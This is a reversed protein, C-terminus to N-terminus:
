KGKQSALGIWIFIATQILFNLAYNVWPRNFLVPILGLLYQNLWVIGAVLGTAFLLGLFNAWRFPKDSLGSIPLAIMLIILLYSSTITHWLRSRYKREGDAVLFEKVNGKLSDTPFLLSDSNVIFISDSIQFVPAPGNDLQEKSFLELFGEIVTKRNIIQNETEELLQVLPKNEKSIKKLKEIKELQDIKQQNVYFFSFGLLNDIILVGAVLIIVFVFKSTISYDRDTFFRIFEKFLDM